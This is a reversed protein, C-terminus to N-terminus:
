PEVIGRPFLDEAAPRILDRGRGVPADPRDLGRVVAVPV